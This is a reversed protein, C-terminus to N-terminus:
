TGAITYRDMYNILNVFCLITVTIIQRKTLPHGVTRNEGTKELLATPLLIVQLPFEKATLKQTRVPYHVQDAPIQQCKEM